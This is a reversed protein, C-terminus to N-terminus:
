SKISLLFTGVEESTSAIAELIVRKVEKSNGLSSSRGVEGLCLLALVRASEPSRPRSVQRPVPSLSGSLSWRPESWLVSM